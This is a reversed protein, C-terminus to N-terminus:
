AAYALSDVMRHYLAVPDQQTDSNVASLSFDESALWLHRRALAIADVVSVRRARATLFTRCWM